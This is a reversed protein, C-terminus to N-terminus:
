PFTLGIKKSEMAIVEPEQSQGKEKAVYTEELTYIM